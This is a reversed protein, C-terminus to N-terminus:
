EKDESEEQLADLLVQAEEWGLSIQIKLGRMGYKHEESKIDEVLKHIIVRMYAKNIYM